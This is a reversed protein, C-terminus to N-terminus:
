VRFVSSKHSVTLGNLSSDILITSLMIWYDITKDFSKLSFTIWSQINKNFYGYNFRILEFLLERRSGTKVYAPELPRRLCNQKPSSTRAKITEQPVQSSGIKPAQGIPTKSVFEQLRPIIYCAKPNTVIQCQNSKRSNRPIGGHM